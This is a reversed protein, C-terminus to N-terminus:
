IQYLIYKPSVLHHNSASLRLYSILLLSQQDHILVMHVIVSAHSYSVKTAVFSFYLVCKLTNEVIKTDQSACILFM